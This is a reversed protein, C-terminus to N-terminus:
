LHLGFFFGVGLLPKTLNEPAEEPFVFFTARRMERGYAKVVLNRAMFPVPGEYGIGSISFGEMPELPLQLEKALNLNGILLIESGTDIEMEVDKGQINVTTKPLDLPAHRIFDRFILWGADLDIVCCFVALVDLGLLNLGIDAVDLRRRIPFGKVKFEVRM